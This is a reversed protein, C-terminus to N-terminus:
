HGQASSTIKQLLLQVETAKNEALNNGYVEEFDKIAQQYDETSDFQEEFFEGDRYGYIILNSNVKKLFPSPPIKSIQQSVGTLYGYFFSLFEKIEEQSFKLEFPERYINIDYDDIGTEVVRYWSFYLTGRHDYVKLIYYFQGNKKSLEVLLPFYFSGKWDDFFTMTSGFLYELTLFAKPLTLREPDNREDLYLNFLFLLNEKIPLSNERLLHSESDNLRWLNFNTEGRKLNIYHRKETM